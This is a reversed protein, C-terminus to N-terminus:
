SVMDREDVRGVVEQFNDEAYTNGVYDEQYAYDTNGVGTITDGNLMGFQEPSLNQEAVKLAMVGTMGGAMSNIEDRYKAQTKKPLFAPGFVTLATIGFNVERAGLDLKSQAVNSLFNAALGGGAAAGGQKLRNALNLKKKAM